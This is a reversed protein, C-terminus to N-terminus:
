YGGEPPRQRGSLPSWDYGYGRGPSDEYFHMPYLHRPRYRFSGYPPALSVDRVSSLGEEWGYRRGIMSVYNDVFVEGAGWGLPLRRLLADVGAESGLFEVMQSDPADFLTLQAPPIDLANAAVAAVRAGYSHGVLQIQGNGSYFDYALGTQIADALVEGYITTLSLARREALPSQITSSDDAWSYVVVVAHPDTETIVRALDTMWPEFPEGTDSTLDWARRHGERIGRRDWGPTWGHVLVRLTSPPLTGPTVEIFREGDWRGLRSVPPISRADSDDVAMRPSPLQCATLGIVVLALWPTHKTRMHPTRAVNPGPLLHAELGETIIM